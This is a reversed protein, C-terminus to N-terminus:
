LTLQRIVGAAIVRPWATRHFPNRLRRHTEPEVGTIRTLAVTRFFPLFPTLSWEFRGVGFRCTDKGARLGYNAIFPSKVIVFPIFTVLLVTKIVPALRPM